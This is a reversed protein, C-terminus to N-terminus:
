KVKAMKKDVKKEKKSAKTDKENQGKLKDKKDLKMFKCSKSNKEKTKTIKERCKSGNEPAPDCNKKKDPHTVEARVTLKTPKNNTDVRKPTQSPKTPAPPKIRASSSRSSLQGGHFDRQFQQILEERSLSSTPKKRDLTEKKVNANSANEDIKRKNCRQETNINRSSCEVSQRPKPVKVSSCSSLSCSRCCKRMSNASHSRNVSSRYKFSGGGNIGPLSRSYKSTGNPWPNEELSCSRTVMESYPRQKSTSCSSSRSQLTQVSSLKSNQTHKLRLIKARCIVCRLPLTRQALAIQITKVFCRRCVVKHGCPYTQMVAKANVCIVCEEELTAAVEAHKGNLKNLLKDIKTNLQSLENEAPTSPVNSQQRERKYQNYKGFLYIGPSALAKLPKMFLKKSM